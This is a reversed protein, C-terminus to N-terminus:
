YKYRYKSRPKPPRRKKYGSYIPKRYTSYRRQAYKWGQLKDLYKRLATAVGVFMATVIFLMWLDSMLSQPIAWGTGIGVDDGEGEGEGGAAVVQLTWQRDGYRPVADAIRAKVIPSGIADPTGYITGNLVGISMWDPKILLSWLFPTTGGDKVLTHTYWEGFTAEDLAETLIEPDATTLDVSWNLGNHIYDYHDQGGGTENSAIYAWGASPQTWPIDYTPHRPFLEGFSGIFKWYDADVIESESRANNWYTEDSNWPGAWTTIGEEGGTTCYAIMYISTSNQKTSLYGSMTTYARAATEAWVRTWTKDEHTDQYSVFAKGNYNYLGFGVFRDNPLCAIGQLYYKSGYVIYNPGYADDLDWHYTYTSSRWFIHFRGTVNVVAYVSYTQATSGSIAAESGGVFTSNEFDWIRYYIQYQYSTRTWVMMIRDTNNVALSSVYRGTGAYITERHWDDWDASPWHIFLYVDVYTVTIFGVLVVVSGNSTSVAGAVMYSGGSDDVMQNVWAGGRERYAIWFEDDIHKYGVVVVDDKTHTGKTLGSIHPYTGAFEEIEEIVIGEADDMAMYFACCFTIVMLFMNAIRGDSMM